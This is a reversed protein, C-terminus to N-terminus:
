NRDHTQRTDANHIGAVIIILLAITLLFPIM